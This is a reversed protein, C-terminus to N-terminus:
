DIKVIGPKRKILYEQFTNTAAITFDLHEWGMQEKSYKELQLATSLANRIQRSNLNENALRDLHDKIDELNVDIEEGQTIEL